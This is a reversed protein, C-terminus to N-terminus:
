QKMVIPDLSRLVLPTSSGRAGASHILLPVPRSPRSFRVAGFTPHHQAPLRWVHSPKAEAAVRIDAARGQAGQAASPSSPAGLM